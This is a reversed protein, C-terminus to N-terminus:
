DFPYTASVKRESILKVVKEWDIAGDETCFQKSFQLTFKNIIKAYAEQFQDDHLKAQHALPEVIEIYLRDDGSIFRWFDQGCLKWYIGGKQSPNAEKGYCCGNVAIIELEPYQPQLIMRANEFNGLM